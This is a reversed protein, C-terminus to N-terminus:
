SRDIEKDEAEARACAESLSLYETVNVQLMLVDVAM